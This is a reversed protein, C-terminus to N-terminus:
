RDADESHTLRREQNASMSSSASLSPKNSATREDEDHRDDDHQSSPAPFQSDARRRFHLILSASSHPSVLGFHARSGSTLWELRRSLLDTQLPPIFSNSVSDTQLPPIFSNPVSDTQLPPIFSNPVSDTQLPPIFSNPVSDTQFNLLHHFSFYFIEQGNLLTFFDYYLYTLNLLKKIMIVMTM